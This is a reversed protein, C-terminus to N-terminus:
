FPAPSTCWCVLVLPGCPPWLFVLYDPLDCYFCVKEPVEIKDYLMARDMSFVRLAVASYTACRLAFHPSPLAAHLRHYPAM